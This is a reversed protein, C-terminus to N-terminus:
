AVRGSEADQKQFSERLSSAFNLADAHERIREEPTKRWSEYLMAVDMGLTEVERWAATDPVPLVLPEDLPMGHSSTITFM